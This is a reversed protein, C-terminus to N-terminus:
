VGPKFQLTRGNTSTLVLKTKTISAQTMEGLAKLYRQEHNLDPCAAKTSLIPGAAFAPYPATQEARYANCPARGALQGSAPFTLTAKAPFPTGDLTVLTWVTDATSDYHSADQSTCATAYIALFFVLYKM